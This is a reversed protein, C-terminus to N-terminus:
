DEKPYPRLGLIMASKETLPKAVLKPDTHEALNSAVLGYVAQRDQSADIEVCKNQGKFHEVTPLTEEAFTDFEAERGFSETWGELKDLSRPFGDILFNTKGTTRIATEMADKLLVVIIANPVLKGATM